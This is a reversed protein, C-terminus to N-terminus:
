GMITYVYPSYTAEYFYEHYYFELNGYTMKLDYIM